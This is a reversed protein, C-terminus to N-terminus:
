VRFHRSEAVWGLLTPPWLLRWIAKGTPLFAIAILNVFRFAAVTAPLVLWGAPSTMPHLESSSQIVPDSIASREEVEM